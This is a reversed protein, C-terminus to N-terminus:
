AFSSRNYNRSKENSISNPIYLILLTIMATFYNTYIIEICSLILMMYIFCLVPFSTKNKASYKIMHYLMTLYFLCGLFGIEIFMNLLGNQANTGVDYMLTAVHSNGWGFGYIPSENLVQGLRAYIGVRGTLTLDEKLIDVIVYQVVSISLILEIILFFLISFIFLLTLYIKPNYLSERNRLKSVLYYFILTGIVMTTCKTKISLLFTILIILNVFMKQKKVLVTNNFKMMYIAILMINLYCVYFKTGTKYEIGEVDYLFANIDSLIVYLLFFTFLYNLFLINKRRNFINQYEFYLIFLIIKLSFYATQKIGLSSKTIFNVDNNITDWFPLDYSLGENMYASYMILAVWLIAFVNIWKYYPSKLMQLCKYNICLFGLILANNSWGLLTPDLGEWKFFITFFFTFASFLIKFNSNNM